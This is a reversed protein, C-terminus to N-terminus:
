LHLDQCWVTETLSWAAKRKNNAMTKIQGTASVTSMELQLSHVDSAFSICKIGKDLFLFWCFPLVFIFFSILAATQSDSSM